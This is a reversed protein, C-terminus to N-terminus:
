DQATNRCDGVDRNNASEEFGVTHSDGVRAVAFEGNVRAVNRARVESLNVRMRARTSNRNQKATWEKVLEPFRENRIKSTASDTVSRDVEVEISEAREARFDGFKRLSDV